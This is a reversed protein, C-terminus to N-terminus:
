AGDFSLLLVDRLGPTGDTRVPSTGHWVRRDDAYVTDLFASLETEALARESDAIATSAGRLHPSRAVLHIAIHDFGDQHM